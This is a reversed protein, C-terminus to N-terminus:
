RSCCGPCNGPWCVAWISAWRGRPWSSEWNKAGAVTLGCGLAAFRLPWRRDSLRDLVAGLPLQMAFACFNYLLIGGFDADLRGLMAWACIGDVFFHLLAYLGTM